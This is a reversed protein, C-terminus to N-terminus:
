EPRSQRSGRIPEGLRSAIVLVLGAATISCAAMGLPLSGLGAVGILGGLAAPFISYGCVTGLIAYTIANKTNPVVRALWSLVVPFIPGAFLGVLAFTLPPYAHVAVLGLMLTTMGLAAILLQPSSLRMAFPAAIVRGLTFAAWYLSTAAAAFQASFGAAILDTAEWTGVGSEIGVYVLLLVAFWVVLRRARASEISSATPTPAVAPIRSLPLICVVGAIGAGVFLPSYGGAVGVLAPGLISGVGYSANVLALM